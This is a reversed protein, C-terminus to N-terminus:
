APGAETHQSPSQVAKRGRSVGAKHAQLRRRIAEPDRTKAATPPTVSGPVLREGPARRPLGTVTSEAVPAEVTAKEAAKEAIEWGRDIETHHFEGDGESALWGSRMSKFIPSDSGARVTAGNGTGNAAHGNSGNQGNTTLNTTALPAYASGLVDAGYAAAAPERAPAPAPAEEAVPVPEPEPEVQAVVPEPEPEVHAVVPEPEPEVHAVVPEPEVAAPEPATVPTTERQSSGLGLPDDADVEIDPRRTAAVATQEPEAHVEPEPEAAVEAAPQQPADFADDPLPDSLPDSLPDAARAPEEVPEEVTAVPEAAPEPAPTPEATRAEEVAQARQRSALATIPVVSAVKEARGAAADSAAAPAPSADAAPEARKGFLPGTAGSTEPPLFADAGTRPINAGPERRPLLSELSPRDPTPVSAAAAPAAAPAVAPEPTAPAAPAAVPAAAAAAPETAKETAKAAVKDAAKAQAKEVRARNRAERKSETKAAVASTDLTEAM